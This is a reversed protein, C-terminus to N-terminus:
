PTRGSVLFFVTYQLYTHTALRREVEEILRKSEEETLRGQERVRQVQRSIFPLSVKQSYQVTPEIRIEGLGLKQLIGPLYRGITGSYAIDSRCQTWKRALISDDLALIHSDLDPELLVLSGGPKLVRVMEAIAVEPTLSHLLVREARCGDFSEDAFPMHHMDGHQFTESYASAASRQCAIALLEQSADLGIVSGQRGAMPALARVDDGLGCGIELIRAGEYAHLMEYSQTKLRQIVPDRQFRELFRAYALPDPADDVHAFDGQLSMPQEPTDM